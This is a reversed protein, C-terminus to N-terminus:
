NKIIKGKLNITPSSIQYYYIGSNLNELNINQIKLTIIEEKVLQGLTNFLLLNGNKIESALTILNQAPNPYLIANEITNDLDNLANTLALQFDPVGYGKQNTPNASLDASQKIYNTVDINTLSPVASWFSAIMGAMVPSSFSTGSSTLINGSTTSVTTALGKACVDPKIRGDFSPGISSFSVYNKNSDVAGVAFANIAEAPVAVHPNSSNGSNGASVVVMMGKSFAMNAGRSAFATIGNMQSYTHSYSPNDYDFYGLSSNIVDVGYYDALEAAEVWYSEEVPNEENIDETIFLYYKAEPATGILQGEVLSGMCSLVNTGHNHRSFYNTNRDPFNYGGLIQNNTILNQFSSASNVNIFGSDLVAIIKGQGKHNQQHLLHGNLMEIQNLSNGYNYASLEEYKKDVKTNKVTNNTQDLRANLSKNAFDISSVFTLSSLAQIDTQSGRIHLCNLWKSKAMVTIGTSVTIQDVYQQHVPVDTNDLAINQATRRDLARQTLMTLPNALFNSANPKDTFYVWADEQSIANFSILCALFLFITKM